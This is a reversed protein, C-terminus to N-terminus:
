ERLTFIVQSFSKVCEHYVINISLQKSNASCTYTQFLVEIFRNVCDWDHIPKNKYRKTFEDVYIKINELIGHKHHTKCDKDHNLFLKGMQDEFIM